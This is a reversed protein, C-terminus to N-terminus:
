EGKEVSKLQPAGIHWKGLDDKHFRKKSGLLSAITGSKIGSRKVIEQRTAAGGRKELFEALRDAMTKSEGNADAVGIGRKVVEATERMKSAVEEHWQAQQELEHVLREM